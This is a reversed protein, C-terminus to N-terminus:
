RAKRSLEHAEPANHLNQGEVSGSGLQLPKKDALSKIPVARPCAFM